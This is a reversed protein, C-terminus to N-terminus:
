LCMMNFQFQIFVVNYEHMKDSTTLMISTSKIKEKEIIHIPRSEM